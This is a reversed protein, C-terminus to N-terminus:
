NHLFGLVSIGSGSLLIGVGMLWPRNKKDSLLGFVPQTIANCLSMVFMLGATETYSMGRQVVLFPAMAMLAFVSLDVCLHGIMMVYSYYEKRM